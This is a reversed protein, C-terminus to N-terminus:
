EMSKDASIFTVCQGTRVWQGQLSREWNIADEASKGNTSAYTNKCNIIGVLALMIFLIIFKKLMKMSYDGGKIYFNGCIIKDFKIKKKM